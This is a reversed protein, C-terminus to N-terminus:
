EPKIINIITPTIKDGGSTIDTKTVYLGLIKDRRERYLAAMKDNGQGEKKLILQNYELIIRDKDKETMSKKLFSYVQTLYREITRRTVGWEKSCTNVIQFTHHGMALLHLVREIREDKQARNINKSMLKVIGDSM